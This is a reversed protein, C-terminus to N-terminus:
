RLREDVVVVKDPDFDFRNERGCGRQNALVRKGTESIFDCNYHTHGFAWVLVAPSSWCIEDKLETVFASQVGRGDGLHEPSNAKPLSTPSYHTLVIIRRDPENRAIGEVEKNLWDLDARHAANHTDVTWDTINSFDSVFLLVTSRQLPAIASFLTCGLVTVTSGPVDFRKQDLFVFQGLSVRGAQRAAKVDSEFAEMGVRADAYTSGYLEHNGLVFFVIEFNLLQQELFRFLKEDQAIGIDGLLALYPAKPEIQFHHYMPLFKPTELHLDSMIQISVLHEGHQRGDPHNIAKAEAM